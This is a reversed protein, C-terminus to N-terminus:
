QCSVVFMHAHLDDTSSTVTVSGGGKMTALQSPQLTVMHTHGAAIGTTFTQASTADLVSSPVTMTHTHMTSDPVQMAGLPNTCAAAPAGGTGTTGSAGGGTGGAGTTGASGGTGTTGGRGTGSSGGTGTQNSDDDDCSAVAAGTGVLSFTLVIFQKRTMGNKADM